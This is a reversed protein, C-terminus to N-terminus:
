EDFCSRVESVCRPADDAYHRQKGRRVLNKNTEFGVMELSVIDRMLWTMLKVDNM